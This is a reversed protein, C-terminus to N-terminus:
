KLYAQRECKFNQQNWYEMNVDILPTLKSCKPQIIQSLVAWVLSRIVDLGTKLFSERNAPIGKEEVIETDVWIGQAGLLIQGIWKARPLHTASTIVKVKHVKWQRLIPIAYFFNGFTSNACKELVVKQSPINERKFILWICPDVSGHSILIPVTPYQKRLQAVHMERRISGGLVLFADVPQSAAFNLTVTLLLMWGLLFVTLALIGTILFRRWRLKLYSCYRSIFSKKM